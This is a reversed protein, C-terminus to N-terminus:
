YSYVADDSVDWYGIKAVLWNIAQSTADVQDDNGGKPFASFEELYDGIWYTSPDPIFVNGAEVYPAIASARVKKGGEPEIAILGPIKRELLQIVAPGNAKDEILKASSKPFAASMAQIASITAIIDMRDRVQKLLYFQSGIMGWVQGVVYDSDKLDKFSCDWSQIILDFQAPAVQYHKWWNRKFLGGDAPSPRQQHQGAYGYSGLTTKEEQLVSPPFREFFMLEGPETRPDIWGLPSAAQKSEFEQPICLHTWGGKKLVHGSLDSTHLRQMIGIRVSAKLDNVRNRIASDWRDLVGQRIADSNVEEADHPDDWFLADGRDGTIKSNFGFASRIGGRTNWFSSKSNNDSRLLWDPKFRDQYWESEVLDRCYVSDRLAVRPNASLFIARWSPDLLWMWAPSCVSVVRSKLSGPPVNILLNQIRQQYAPDQKHRLWDLLTEQIHLCMADIHWNWILDTSPEIVQWSERVFESLSIAADVKEAARTADEVADEWQNRVSKKRAV